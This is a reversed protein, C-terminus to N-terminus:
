PKDPMSWSEQPVRSANKARGDRNWDMKRQRTAHFHRYETPTVGYRAKFARGFYTSSNFGFRFAIETVARNAQLPDSLNRACSDLRRHLILKGISTESNQFLRHLYRMSVNVADAIMRPSLASDRINGEIFQMVQLRRYFAGRAGGVAEINLVGRYSEILLDLLIDALHETPGELPGEFSRWLQQIFTSALGSVGSNGPMRICTLREPCAIRETLKSYPVRIVLNETAGSLAIEYERTTDRLLYDGPGLVTERGDQYNYSTGKRQLHVLFVPEARSGVGMIHRRRHHVRVAESCLCLFRLPGIQMRYLLGSFEEKREVDIDL